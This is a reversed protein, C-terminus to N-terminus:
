YQLQKPHVDLIADRPVGVFMTPNPHGPLDPVDPFVDGLEDHADLIWYDTNEDLTDVVTRIDDYHYQEDVAQRSADDMSHGFREPVDELPNATPDYRYFDTTRTDGSPTEVEVYWSVPTM